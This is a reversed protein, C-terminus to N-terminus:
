CLRLPGPQFAVAWGRLAVSIPANMDTDRVDLLFELTLDLSVLGLSFGGCGSLISEGVGTRGEM